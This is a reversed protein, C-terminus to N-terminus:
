FGGPAVGSVLAPTAYRLNSPMDGSLNVNPGGGVPHMNPTPDNPDVEGALWGSGQEKLLAAMQGAVLWAYQTQLANSGGNSAAQAGHTSWNTAPGNVYLVAVNGGANSGGATVQCVWSAGAPLDSPFGPSMLQAATYTGPAQAQCQPMIAMAQQAATRVMDQANMNAFDHRNGSLTMLVWLAALIGLFVVFLLIWM